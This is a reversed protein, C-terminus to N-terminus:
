RWCLRPLLGEQGHQPGHPAGAAAPPRPLHCAGPQRARVVDGAALRERGWRRLCVPPRLRLWRDPQEPGGAGPGLLLNQDPLGPAAPHEVPVPPQQPLLQPVSPQLLEGQHRHLSGPVRRSPPFSLFASAEQSSLVQKIALAQEVRWMVAGQGQTQGIDVWSNQPIAAVWTTLVM